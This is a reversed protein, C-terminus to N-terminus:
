CGKTRKGLIRGLQRSFVSPMTSAWVNNPMNNRRACHPHGIDGLPVVSSDSKVDPLNKSAKKPTDAEASLLKTASLAAERRTRVDAANCVSFAACAEECRWKIDQCISSFMLAAREHLEPSCTARFGFCVQRGDKCILRLGISIRAAAASLIESFSISHCRRPIELTGPQSDKRGSPNRYLKM